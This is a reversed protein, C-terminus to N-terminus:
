SQAVEVPSSWVAIYEITILMDYVVAASCAGTPETAAWIDFYVGDTPDGAATGFNTSDGLGNDFWDNMSYNKVCVATPYKLATANGVAGHALCTRGQEMIASFTNATVATDDNTFVGAIFPVGADAAAGNGMVEVRISSGIVVFRDYRGVMEDFLLPQHTAGAVSPMYM